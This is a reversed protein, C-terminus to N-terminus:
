KRRAALALAEEGVDSNNHKEMKKLCKELQEDYNYNIQKSIREAMNMFKPRYYVEYELPNIGITGDDLRKDLEKVYDRLMAVILTLEGYALRVKFESIPRSRTNVAGEISVEEDPFDESLLEWITFQKDINIDM